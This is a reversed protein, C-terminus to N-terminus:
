VPYIERVVIAIFRAPLWVFLFLAGQGLYILPAGATLAPAVLAREGTWRTTRWSTQAAWGVAHAAYMTPTWVVRQSFWAAINWAIWFLSLAIQAPRSHGENNSDSSGAEITKRNRKKSPPPTARHEADDEDDEDDQVYESEKERRSQRKISAVAENRTPASSVRERQAEKIVQRERALRRAESLEVEDTLIRRPVYKAWREAREEDTEGDRVQPRDLSSHQQQQQQIIHHHLKQRAHQSSSVPAQRVASEHAARYDAEALVSTAGVVLLLLALVRTMAGLSIM